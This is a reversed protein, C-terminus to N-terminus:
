TIACWRMQGLCSEPFCTNEEKESMKLQNGKTSQTMTTNNCIMFQLGSMRRWFTKICKQIWQEMLSQLTDLGRPLLSTAFWSAEKVISWLQSSIKSNTQLAGKGKFRHDGVHQDHDVPLVKLSDRYSGFHISFQICLYSVNHKVTNTEADWLLKTWKSHM